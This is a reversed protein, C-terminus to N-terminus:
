DYPASISVSSPTVEMPLNTSFKCHSGSTKREMLFFDLRYMAGHSLGLRNLDVFMSKASHRGGLDIM